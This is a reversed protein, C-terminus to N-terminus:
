QPSKSKFDMSGATPQWKSIMSISTTKWSAHYSRPSPLHLASHSTTGLAPIRESCLIRRCSYSGTGRARLSAQRSSRSRLALGLRKQGRRSDRSTSAKGSRALTEGRRQQRLRLVAQVQIQKVKSAVPCHLTERTPHRKKRRGKEEEEKRLQHHQEKVLLRMEQVRLTLMHHLM